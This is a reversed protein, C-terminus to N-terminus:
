GGDDTKDAAANFLFMGTVVAKILGSVLLTLAVSVRYAGAGAFSGAFLALIFCARENRGRNDKLGVFLRRDILLDVYAATAQATPIAAMRLQRSMAVQMGSSFALMAIAGLLSPSDNPSDRHLYLVLSAGLSLFTQITNSLLLWWRKFGCRAHAAYQGAALTGAIFLFLSTLVHPLPLLFNTESREGILSLASVAILVTNGTQNSVVAHPTLSSATPQHVPGRTCVFM